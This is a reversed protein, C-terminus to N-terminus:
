NYCRSAKRALFNTRRAVHTILTRECVPQYNSSSDPCTVGTAHTYRQCRANLGAKDIRRRRPGRRLGWCRAAFLCKLRRRYPGDPAAVRIPLSTCSAFDTREVRRAAVTCGAQQDPGGSALSYTGRDLQCTSGLSKRVSARNRVAVLRRYLDGSPTPKFSYFAPGYYCALDTSIQAIQLCGCRSCQFYQPTDGSGYMKDVASFVPHNDDSGCIRCRVSKEM